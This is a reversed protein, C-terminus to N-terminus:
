ESKGVDDNDGKKNETEEPTSKEKEEEKEKPKPNDKEILEVVSKLKDELGKVDESAAITFKIEVESGKKTKFDIKGKKEDFLDGFMNEMEM